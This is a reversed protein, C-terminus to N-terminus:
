PEYSRINAILDRLQDADVSAEIFKSYASFADDILEEYTLVRIRYPKLSEEDARRIEPIEWGRPLEGVICVSEIPHRSEKPNKELESKVSSVYRNLQHEIEVKGLRRSARKLEIIVHAGGVRRYRIDVRVHSDDSEMGDVVEQLRQEMYQYQTAREWAPDLLWLHDFVYQQLIREKVNEDISSQLKRIIQLRQQVIDHYKAAEIADIDALHSLLLELNSADLAQIEELAFDIKRTEFALIGNAYLEHIHKEDVGAQDIVTFIEEASKKLSAPKLSEYWELIFPNSSIANQLSKRQKLRNTTSWIYRLEDGIFSKLALYRPDDELIRQRSSTAIDEEDDEDLFEAHFEGYMYKTIMGGLRYEQLIDEQAVKDRALLTIKNLNDDQRNDDQRNDGQRSDVQGQDDLDNSKRAIGIWGNVEYPGETCYEGAANFRNPRTYSMMQGTVDDLDLNSCHQAYDYGGYQFIFRAKHFYDRDSFTVEDGDIVIQFEGGLGALGFRRAIRKRLGNISARTLRFKKLKTIKILTGQDGIEAEFPIPEPHYVLPTSPEENEILTRIADADLLFSEPESHSKKTYVYIHDAISFLSLKGIGKRGMPKRGSRTRPSSKRKQYGVHLYKANIDALDMGIGDDSVSIERKDTDFHVSAEAADADWSNAIVEALVAPTNSYLNLGLHNLVNLSISMSYKDDTM